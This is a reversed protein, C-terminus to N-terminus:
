SVPAADVLEHLLAKREVLATQLLVFQKNIVDVNRDMGMLYLQLAELGELSTFDGVFASTDILIRAPKM